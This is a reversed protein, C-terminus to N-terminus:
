VPMMPENNSQNSKGYAYDMFVRRAFVIIALIVLLLALWGLLTTPLFASGFISAAALNNGEIVHNVVYAIEDQEATSGALNYTMVATTILVGGVEAKSNIHGQITMSGVQDPILIDPDFEVANDSNVKGFNSGDFDIEAPLQIIIKTNEFNKATNNKYSVLYEVKDGQAVEDTKTAISLIESQASTATPGNNVGDTAPTVDNGLTKFVFINGHASGNSNTANARFFYITDATLGSITDSFNVSSNGGLNQTPTTHGMSATKGYEFYGNTAVGGGIVAIGHVRASTSTENTALITTVTLQSTTNGSTTTAPTTDIQPHGGGGGGSSPVAPGGDTLVPGSGSVVVVPPTSTTTFSTWNSTAPGNDNGALIRFQYTTSPTLGTLVYPTLTVNTNGSGLVQISSPNGPSVQFRANSNTGGNPNVVANLTASTNTIASANYSVITPGSVVASTTFSTWSTSAPGNDNGALIRFQYTTSPTLGTLVYPTLTIDANGSGLSQITSPSGPSVEFHANSNTGSNPNVVGNLTASTSTIATVSSSVITPPLSVPAASTTFSTWGTSTPGDDNSALIRYQYTTSPTLGTLVYPTMTVNSNGSGLAEPASPSGPSVQFNANTNVGSNPNVVGNLTASTSTIATASSSVITPAAALATGAGAFLIAVLAFALILNKATNKM